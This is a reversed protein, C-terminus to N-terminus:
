KSADERNQKSVSPTLLGGRFAFACLRLPIWHPSQSFIFSFFFYQSIFLPHIKCFHNDSDISAPIIQNGLILQSVDWNQKPSSFFADPNSQQILFVVCLSIHKQEAVILIKVGLSCALLGFPSPNEQQSGHNSMELNHVHTTQKTLRAARILSDRETWQKEEEGMNSGEEQEFGTHHLPITSFRIASIVPAVKCKKDSASFLTFFECPTFSTMFSMQSIERSSQETGGPSESLPRANQLFSYPFHM